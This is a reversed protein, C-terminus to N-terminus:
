QTYKQSSYISIRKDMSRILFIFQLQNVDNKIMFIKSKQILDKPSSLTQVDTQGVDFEIIINLNRM